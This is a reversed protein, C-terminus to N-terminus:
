LDKICLNLANCLPIFYLMKTIDALHCVCTQDRNNKSVILFIRPLIFLVAMFENVQSDTTRNRQDERNELWYLLAQKHQYIRKNGETQFM